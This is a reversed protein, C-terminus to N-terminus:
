KAQRNRVYCLSVPHGKGQINQQNERGSRTNGPISRLPITGRDKLGGPIGANSDEFTDSDDVRRSRQLQGSQGDQFGMSMTTASIFWFDGSLFHVEKESFLVLGNETVPTDRGDFGTRM